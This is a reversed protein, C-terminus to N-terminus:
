GAPRRRRPDRAPRPRIISSTGSRTSRSTPSTQWRRLVRRDGTSAREAAGHWTAEAGLTKTYADLLAGVASPFTGSASDFGVFGKGEEIFELLAAKGEHTM